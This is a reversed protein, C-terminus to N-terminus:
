NWVDADNRRRMVAVRRHDSSGRWGAATGLLKSRRGAFQRREREGSSAAEAAPWSRGPVPASERPGRLPEWTPRAARGVALRQDGLAYYSRVPCATERDTARSVKRRRTRPPQLCNSLRCRRASPRCALNLRHQVHFRFFPGNRVRRRRAAASLTRPAPECDIPAGLGAARDATESLFRGVRPTATALTGRNRDGAHGPQPRWRAGTATALTAARGGGAQDGSCPFARCSRCDPVSGSNSGAHPWGWAFRPRYAAPFRNPTPKGRRRLPDLPERSM